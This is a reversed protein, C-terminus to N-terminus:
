GQHRWEATLRDYESRVRALEAEARHLKVQLSKLKKTATAPREEEAVLGREEETVAKQLTEVEGTVRVVEDAAKKLEETMPRAEKGTARKYKQTLDKFEEFSEPSGSEAAINIALIYDAEDYDYGLDMLLEIGQEWTIVGKKVGKIIDTKTLQREDAIREPESAKFKTEVMEQIRDGPMGLSSLEAKVEDLTIWGNKWRAILDPFAVYVKTWTVYDELDQDFYGQAQYIARLRDETITRMDWWRRVDVRTPIEKYLEAMKPQWFSSMGQTLYTLMAIRKAEKIQESTLPTTTAKDLGSLLGRRMMEVIEFRGPQRWHSFWYKNAWDNPPENSIGIMSFPKTIWGPADYMAKWEAIVSEDFASYDAFRVMDPLPPVVKALERLAAIRDATVGQKALDAWFKAFKEKDRWHLQTVTEASFLVQSLEQAGLIAIDDLGLKRLYPTLEDAKITGRHWMAVLQDANPLVPHIQSNLAYSFRLLLADLIRGVAGGVLSYGAAHGLLAGVEGTPQKIENLLPKLEAPIEGTAEMTDILPTLIPAAADGVINMGVEIGLGLVEAMFNKLPSGWDKRKEAVYGDIRESIKEM